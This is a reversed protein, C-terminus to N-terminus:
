QKNVPTTLIEKIVKRTVKVEPNHIVLIGNIAGVSDIYYGYEDQEIEDLTWLIVHANESNASSPTSVNIGLGYKCSWAITSVEVDADVIITM